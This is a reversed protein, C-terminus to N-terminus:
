LLAADDNAVWTSMAYLTRGKWGQLLWQQDVDIFFDKHYGDKVKKMVAKVVDPELPLQRLGARDNRVQWQRYTEPREVRDTGECAIANLACRGFLEQEVLMRETDDRPAIADMMDLMASYYFLAERFRTVFFPANYSSNEICLIFVDPRMRQINKLVMDRPSPSDIDGGEDILTGFHFLDNIILVEDPEINLDDVGITEWKAVISSLKFPIGCQWAFNSLRRGTQEVRAAPRFEPQPFDIGTIRVEPAGGERKALFGLLTPWQFGYHEGYDVIHVKKRGAIAKCVTINSFKFAMMQFCCVAMYLQYAKHFEVASVRRSMLSEYVQSGTGALRAELGQTFCHALRQTADGRPSSRQKIERILETAAHRDGTARSTRLPHALHTPGCGRQHEEKEQREERDRQGHQHEYGVPMAYLTRGKWGQLLWQQDVDIFFDKHYGDKVKKKIAKVVDPELPLQRLGARDNRVQWQRYTEPREVRDTGECAIANLACWRFLEQEVLMRDTDDRPAIADMMDFMASYYFLAERFRTVFFPANYSSNEICLIFVDPRMRQINKLVMDRPSPSDIDGGEDILTGFHFLGNVILVEDPEINLDDVGITEWKAVISSFKFPIGCQRAFNSLRRGTQEVRAAPRFGPQPFDIGTIRVEPAGGERKALFGLLTPWQFGYHEGYDVIHVKKRGAIAKCITINSFKFAMIQFCCVAMYLQYAKHFEVASVRSSMLSEYVQSGTGALRAELGQTFCHALRQTADGRPSSRQKMERILETAAHRKGTAMAQACHILLTRLDVVENASGKEKKRANKETERDMSINMDMMRDLLSQYGNQIFEDVMESAEEIDPVMLKSNRGTEAELVHDWDIDHSKKRGRRDNAPQQSMSLRDISTDTLFSNNSKPLFKNAEEMGKLFAQNLMEMTVRNNGDPLTAGHQGVAGMGPPPQTRSNSLLLMQSLEVPDYPWTADNAAFASGASLIEAFPQQVKLLAPHDDDIDEDEMLVRAIFPLVFDDNGEELCPTPPLDLFDSPSFPPEDEPGAAM